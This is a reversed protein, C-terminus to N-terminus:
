LKGLVSGWGLLSADMELVELDISVFIKQCGADAYFDVIESGVQDQTLHKLLDLSQQRKVFYCCTSFGMTTSNRKWLTYAVKFNHTGIQAPQRICNLCGQVRLSWRLPDVAEENLFHEELVEGEQLIHLPLLTGM